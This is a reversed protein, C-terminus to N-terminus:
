FITGTKWISSLTSGCMQGQKLGFKMVGCKCKETCRLDPLYSFTFSYLPEYLQSTRLPVRSDSLDHNIMAELEDRHLIIM